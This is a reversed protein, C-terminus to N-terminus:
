SGSGGREALARRTKPGVVGDVVLGARSQFARVSRETVPGFVADVPIGLAEQLVRVYLGSDGRRLTPGEGIGPVEGPVELALSRYTRPGVVGDPALGNIDQFEVVASRTAPGFVGDLGLDTAASRGVNLACQVARVAEGRDGADVTVTPRLAPCSAASAATPTLVVLGGGILTIALAGTLRRTRTPAVTM